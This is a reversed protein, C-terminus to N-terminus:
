QPIMVSQLDDAFHDPTVFHDLDFEFDDTVWFAPKRDNPDTKARKAESETM